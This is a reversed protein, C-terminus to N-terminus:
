IFSKGDKRTMVLGLAIALIAVPLLLYPKVGQLVLSIKELLGEGATAPDVPYLFALATIGIGVVLGSVLAIVLAKRLRVSQRDVEGKLGEVAELRHRTELLFAPDEKVVPKHDRLFQELDKM